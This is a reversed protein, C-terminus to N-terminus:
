MQMTQKRRLRQWEERPIIDVSAKDFSLSRPVDTSDENKHGSKRRKGETGKKCM